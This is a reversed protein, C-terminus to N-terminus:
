EVYSGPGANVGQWNPREVGQNKLSLYILQLRLEPIDFKRQVSLSELEFFHTCCVCVLLMVDIVCRCSVRILAM